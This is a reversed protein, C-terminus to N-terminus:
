SPLPSQDSMIYSGRGVLVLGLNALADLGRANGALGEEKGGLEVVGVLTARGLCKLVREALETGGVEVEPEHVPRCGHGALTARVVADVPKVGPLRHLLEVLLM